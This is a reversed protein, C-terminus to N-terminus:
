FIDLFDILVRKKETNLQNWHQDLRQKLENDRQSVFGTKEKSIPAAKSKCDLFFWSIPIDLLVAINVLHSVNIKNTGREYRSLQQQSMELQESLESATIKLEKRRMQIRRGISQDIETVSQKSM